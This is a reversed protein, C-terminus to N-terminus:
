AVDLRKLRAATPDVWRQMGMDRYLALATTLHQRAKARDAGVALQTM